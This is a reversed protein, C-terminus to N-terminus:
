QTLEMKIKLKSLFYDHAGCVHTSKSPILPLPPTARRFNKFKKKGIYLVLNITYVIHKSSM